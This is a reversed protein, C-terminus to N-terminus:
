VKGLPILAVHFAILKTWSTFEHRRTWKRRRYGNCWPCRRLSDHRTKYEKQYKGNVNNNKDNNYYNNQRIKRTLTLHHNKVPTQIVTLRRLDGSSRGTCHGIEVISHKLHGQNTRTNGVSELSKPVIIM